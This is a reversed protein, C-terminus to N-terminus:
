PVKVFVNRFTVVHSHDQLGLHGKTRALGPHAKYHDKLDDLNADVITVGNVAVSLRRGQSRVEMQNWEGIPKQAKKSPPVVGYISGMHQVDRFGKLHKEHWEDDIIQIEIGQYAPDGKMPAHVAVGSNGAVPLKYELHLDFDTYEKKTMLWGGGGGSRITGDKVSWKKLSGNLATWGKLNKGNFLATFGPPPQPVDDARPVAPALGAALALATLATARRLM